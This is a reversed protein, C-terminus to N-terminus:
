LSRPEICLRTDGGSFTAAAAMRPTRAVPESQKIEIAGVAAAFRQASGQDAFACDVLWLIVIESRDAAGMDDIVARADAEVESVTTALVDSGTSVLVSLSTWQWCGLDPAGLKFLLADAESPLEVVIIWGCPVPLVVDTPELHAEIWEIAPDYSGAPLAFIKEHMSM